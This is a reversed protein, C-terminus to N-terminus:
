PKWGRDKSSVDAAYTSFNSKAEKLLALYLEEAIREKHVGIDRLNADLIRLGIWYSMGEPAYNDPKRLGYLLGRGLKWPTLFFKKVKM